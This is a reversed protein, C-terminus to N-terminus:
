LPEPYPDLVSQQIFAEQLNTTFVADCRGSVMGGGFCIKIGTGMEGGMIALVTRSRREARSVFVTDSARSKRWRGPAVWPRRGRQVQGLITPRALVTLSPGLVVPACGVVCRILGTISAVVASSRM